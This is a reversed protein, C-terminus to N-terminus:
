RKAPIALSQIVAGDKGTVTVTLTTPTAEVRAIADQGLALVPYNNGKEGPKTVFTKHYHGGIALDVGAQNALATWAAGQDITWGWDPQHLLVVRFPAKTV